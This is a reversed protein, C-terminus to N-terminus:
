AAADRGPIPHGLFEPLDRGAFAIDNLLRVNPPNTRISRGPPHANLREIKTCLSKIEM